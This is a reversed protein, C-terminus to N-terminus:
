FWDDIPPIGDLPVPLDLFFAANSYFREHVEYLVPLGITRIANVGDGNGRGLNITQHIPVISEWGIKQALTKTAQLLRRNLNPHTPFRHIDM